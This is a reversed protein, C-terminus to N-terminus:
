KGRCARGIGKRLMDLYCEIDQLHAELLALGKDPHQQCVAMFRLNLANISTVLLDFAKGADVEQRFGSADADDMTISMAEAMQRSRQALEEALEGEMPPTFADMLIRYLQPFRVFFTLKCRSVRAVREFVDAPLTGLESELFGRMRELADDLIILYLTKKNSFYHFLMGKSIGAEEIIKNTSAKAYGQKSFHERAISLLQQKKDDPGAQGSRDATQAQSAMATAADSRSESTPEAQVKAAKPVQSVQSVRPEGGKRPTRDKM